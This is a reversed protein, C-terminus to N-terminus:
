EMRKGKYGDYIMEVVKGQSNTEFSVESWFARAIFTLEGSPILEGWDISIKGNTEKVTMLFNARYFDKDFQYKGVLKKTLTPNLSTASLNVAEYKENFLIAAIDMGISTAVPIYNNALVIICVDEDPYRAFYSTFGPSRGNMYARRRNLHDKVFCGYGTNAKHNAYMQELSAKSLVKGNALARDWKLLDNATTYMSGNGTKSSWDLYDSKELGFNGDSQYGVACNKITLNAKQHHATNLMGSPKLLEAELFDGFTKGSVKEVIYALINYNSNSYSYKDGPNFNLPSGKFLKILSEPTQSVRSAEAYEKMDNVNAIGSTHTLLHHITIENARTFDPIYKSLLDKTSLLGKEELKLIAAATFNKSVSAIHYVTGSQNLIDFDANAYGFSNEYLVTGAKAVLITGNFNQTAVYPAIYEDIKATLTKDSQSLGCTTTCLVISLVSAILHNIHKM